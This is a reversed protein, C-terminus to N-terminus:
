ATLMVIRAVRHMHPVVPGDYSLKTERPTLWLTDDMSLHEEADEEAFYTVTIPIIQGAM